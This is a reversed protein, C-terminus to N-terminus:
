IDVPSLNDNAAYIAIAKSADLASGGGIGLIFEAGCARAKCGAEHCSSLLPNEGIGDYTDFGIGQSTLAIKADDLAGSKLAGSRGSVILCKSGLNKLQAPNETVANKGSIIRAPMFNGFTM